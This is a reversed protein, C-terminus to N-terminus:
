WARAGRGCQKRKVSHRLAGCTLTNGVAAHQARQNRDSRGFPTAHATIVYAARAHRCRARPPALAAAADALLRRVRQLEPSRRTPRLPRRVSASVPRCRLHRRQTEGHVRSGRGQTLRPPAARTADAPHPRAAPGAPQAPKGRGSSLSCRLKM